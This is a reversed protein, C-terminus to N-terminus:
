ELAVGARPHETSQTGKQIDVDLDLYEFIRDFLALSSQVEVQVGLLSGIPFLLRTQLTTFSVLTGITISSSGHALLYGGFWYSLAPLVAFTTQISAMMWRGTMRSRVELDALRASEGEVREALEDSQGMTKGLLIGSVSLSEQVLSSIDAMAGQRVTTVKRRQEGVRRTMYVFFPLLALAFAALRWDLLLMAVITALVTTVNSVVSSAPSPVVDDVGGIANPI